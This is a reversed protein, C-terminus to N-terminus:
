PMANATSFPDRWANSMPKNRLDLVFKQPTDTNAYNYAYISKLADTGLKVRYLGGGVSELTARNRLYDATVPQGSLTTVGKLDNDTVGYMTRDFDGQQMGRKPAILKGGNLSLIGGTVDDISTRLRDENLTGSTDGMQASLDAYRAKIMGQAVPYSGTADTRAGLSFVSAPLKEDFKQQWAATQGDGKPLFEKNTKITQQGRLISEAIPQATRIMSGAAATVMSDTDDAGIKALTASYVDPPLVALASFIRTKAAIDPTALLGKVQNLEDGELASPPASHNMAAIRKSMAGRQALAGGLTDANSFDIPQPDNIWGRHAAETFPLDTLRKEAKEQQDLFAAAVRMHHQDQGNSMERYQAVLADRQPQPLQSIIESNLRGDMAEVAAGLKEPYQVAKQRALAVDGPDPALGSDVAKSIGGIVLQAAQVSSTEDAAVSRVYASVLYPNRQVQEYTFGPGGNAAPAVARGGAGAPQRGGPLSSWQGSLAPLVDATQGSRLATLLDKGTKSKYEAQALDWAAADQNAPSFDTLGLKQKQADWTPAIFQYRGAATSVNGADPGSTIPVAARPHDNFGAFRNGGYTVDYRGASEPGAIHDLLARGEAPIATNVAGSKEMGLVQAQIELPLTDTGRRQQEVLQAAYIEHAGRADGRGYAQAIAMGVAPDTPQIKGNSINTKLLTVDEKGAAIKELADASLYQLRAMGHTYLRNRDVESLNPNQLISETLEKQAAGKGKKTFSEDVHAVLAEGQLLGHFSKKELAIQDAPMRFLPNTGLADYSADMRAVATKFEPTDTGGPQRALGQLTNKQDTINAQISKQQNAVDINATANTISNFHGVQAQDAQQSIAQGVEGGGHDELYKAKWADAATNFAAPDTPYKQHIENMEQSIVNSHQAITGAQVAAHYAEGARGFILSNAPNAVSVSGDANLTVKQDQLDNAAQERAQKEAISMTADAVKNIAGAMLDANGQIDGRSVSSTPATSTVIRDPVTALEVM